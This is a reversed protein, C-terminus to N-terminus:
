AVKYIRHESHRKQKKSTYGSAQVAHESVHGYGRLIERIKTAPILGGDSYHFIATRFDAADLLSELAAICKAPRNFDNRGAVQKHLGGKGSVVQEQFGSLTEPLHYYQDYPRTNYPPDLYLLDWADTTVTDRADGHLARCPKTGGTPPILTFIFPNQSRRRWLKLHSYYTGATNAVRDMSNVLSALLLAQEDFDLQDDRVWESILTWAGDIKAGNERTFFQREEAYERYFWGERRPASQVKKEIAPGPSRHNGLIGRFRPVHDLQVRSIQMMHAFRLRDGTTVSYGNRKCSQGVIAMGGFPDCFRKGPALGNIINQVISVISAKSGFYRM